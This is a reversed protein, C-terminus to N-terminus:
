WATQRVSIMNGIGNQSYSAFNGNGTQSVSSQNNHGTISALVTNSNGSQMVAFLNDSGSVGFRVSNGLGTQTISGPALGNRTTIGRFAAGDPGGNRDGAIVVAVGNAAGEGTSVQDIVLRNHSGTIDFSALNALDDPNRLIMENSALAPGTVMMSVLLAISTRRFTMM